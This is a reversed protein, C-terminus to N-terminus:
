GCPAAERPRLCIRSQGIGGAMEISRSTLDVRAHAPVVQDRPLEERQANAYAVGFKAVETATSCAAQHGVVILVLLSARAHRARRADPLVAAEREILRRFDRLDLREHRM